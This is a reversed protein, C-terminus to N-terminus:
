GFGKVWVGNGLVGNGLGRSGFGTVWVGHGM